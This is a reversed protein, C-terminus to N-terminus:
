NVTRSSWKQRAVVSPLKTFEALTYGEHPLGRPPDSKPPLPPPAGGTGMEFVSTFGELASPVADTEVHSLLVGGSNESPGCGTDPPPGEKKKRTAECYGLARRVGNSGYIAPPSEIM